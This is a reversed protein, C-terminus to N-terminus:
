DMWIEHVAQIRPTTHQRLPLTMRVSLGSRPPTGHTTTSPERTQGKKLSEDGESRSTPGGQVRPEDDCENKKTRKLGPPQQAPTGFGGTITTTTPHLTTQVPLGPRPLTRHAEHPARM